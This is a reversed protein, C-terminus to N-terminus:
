PLRPRDCLRSCALHYHFSRLDSALRVHDQSLAPHHRWIALCKRAYNAQNLHGWGERLSFPVIWGRENVRCRPDANFRENNHRNVAARVGGTGPHEREYRNM